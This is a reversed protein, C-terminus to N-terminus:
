FNDPKEAPGQVNQLSVKQLFSQHKSFLVGRVKANTACHNDQSYSTSWYDNQKQQFHM